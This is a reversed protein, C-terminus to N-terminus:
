WPHENTKEKTASRERAPDALQLVCHETEARNPYENKHDPSNEEAM